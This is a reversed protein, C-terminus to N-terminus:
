NAETPTVADRLLEAVDKVTVERGGALAGVGDELMTMCFPCAVSVVDADTALAQRARERNVRMEPPEEAFSMGGGGGCCFGARRHAAMEVPPGGTARRVLERPADFIGNYRGLYCPDHFTARPGDRGSPNL